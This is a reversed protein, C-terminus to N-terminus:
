TETQCAIYILGNAAAAAGPLAALLSESWVLLGSEANLAYYVGSQSGFYVIGNYVTPPATM